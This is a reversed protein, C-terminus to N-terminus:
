GNDIEENFSDPLVLPTIDHDAVSYYSYEGLSGSDFLRNGVVYVSDPEERREIFFGYVQYGYNENYLRVPQGRKLLAKKRVVYYKYAHGDALCLEFSTHTLNLFQEGDNPTRYGVLEYTPNLELWKDALIAVAADRSFNM